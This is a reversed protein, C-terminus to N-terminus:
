IGREDLWGGAVDASQGGDRVKGTLDTLDATTLEGAVVNLKKVQDDTLSGKRFLPVVNQAPAGDTAGVEAMSYDSVSLGEPLAKNVAVFVDDSDTQKAAPELYKLLGGTTEPVLTIRGSDLAALAQTRDGARVVPPVHAGARRLSGAYIDAILESDISTGSGVVVQGKQLNPNGEADDVACASLALTCAALALVAASRLSPRWIAM